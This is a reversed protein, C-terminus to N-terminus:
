RFVRQVTLKTGEFLTVEASTRVRLSRVEEDGQTLGNTSATDLVLVDDGDVLLAAHVRSIQHPLTTGRGGMCREYRGVLVPHLLDERDVSVEFVGNPSEVTIKAWPAKSPLVEVISRAMTSFSGRDSESESERAAPVVSRRPLRSVASGYALRVNSGEYPAIGFPHGLISLTVLGGGVYRGRPTDDGDVLFGRTTALDHVHLEAEGADNEIAVLMAHRLSVDLDMLRIDAKTHRGIILHDGVRLDRAALAGADDVWSVRFGLKQERRPVLMVDRQARSLALMAQEWRHHSTLSPPATGCDIGDM